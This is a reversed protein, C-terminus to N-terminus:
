VKRGFSNCVSNASVPGGSFLTCNGCGPRSGTFFVCLSCHKAPDPTVDKFALANRLGKQAAPLAAPDYCAPGGQARAAVIGIPAAAILGLLSRRSVPM